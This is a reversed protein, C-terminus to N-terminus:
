ISGRGWGNEVTLERIDEPKVHLIESRGDRTRVDYASAKAFRRGPHSPNSAKLLEEENEYYVEIVYAMRVRNGNDTGPGQFVEVRTGDLLTPLHGDNPDAEHDHRITFEVGDANTFTEPGSKEQTEETEAAKDKTVVGM